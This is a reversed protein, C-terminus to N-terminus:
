SRPPRTRSCSGSAGARLAEFVYEDLDFTTLVLVLVPDGRRGRRTAAHGGPRGPQAHPHGDPRRGPPAPPRRRAGTRRGGGRGRRRHGGGGRAALAPRCAGDAPRRRHRRDHERQPGRASRCGPGSPSGRVRGRVPRSRGATCRWGSAYADYLAAGDGTYPDAAAGAIALLGALVPALVLFWRRAARAAAGASRAPSRTERQVTSSAVM